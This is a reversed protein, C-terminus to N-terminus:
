LDQPPDNNKINLVNFKEPNLDTEEVFHHMNSVNMM